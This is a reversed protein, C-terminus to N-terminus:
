IGATHPGRSCRTSNAHLGVWDSMVIVPYPRAARAMRRPAAQDRGSFLAPLVQHYDPPVQTCQRVV